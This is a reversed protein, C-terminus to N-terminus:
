SAHKSLVKYCFSHFNVINLESKQTPNVYPYIRSKVEKIAKKAFTLVLIQRPELKKVVLLYIVRSVLTKTKGCGPGAVVCILSNEECVAKKQQPNLEQLFEM